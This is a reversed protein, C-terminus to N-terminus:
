LLSLVLSNISKLQPAPSSEQSDRPRCPSWVQDVQISLLLVSASASADTSQGGSAFLQSVPFSETAPFSQFCFSFLGASSSIALFCWWSFPYSNSFIRPCLSPCPLRVPQLGHHKLSDSTVQCSFLLLLIFSQDPKQCSCLTSSPRRSRWCIPHLFYLLKQYIGKYCHNSIKIEFSDKEIYTKEKKGLKRIM